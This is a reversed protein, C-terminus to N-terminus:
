ADTLTGAFSGHLFFTSSESGLPATLTVSFRVTSGPEAVLRLEQTVLDGNEPAPAVTMYHTVTDEGSTAAVTFHEVGVARQFDTFTVLEITLRKGAPVVYDVIDFSQGGAFGGFSFQLHKAVSTAAPGGVNTVPIPSANTVNVNPTNGVSVTPTGTVEVSGAVQTTGIAKTPVPEADTNRVVVDKFADNAATALTPGLTAGVVVCVVALAVARGKKSIDM